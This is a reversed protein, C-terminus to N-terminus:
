IGYLAKRNEIGQLVDATQAPTILGTVLDTATANGRSSRVQSRVALFADGDVCDAGCQALFVGVNPLSPNTQLEEGLKLFQAGEILDIVEKSRKAGVTGLLQEQGHWRNCTECFPQYAPERGIEVALWAILLLAILWYVWTFTAGLNFLAVGLGPIQIVAVGNQDEFLVFGVFGAQGTTSTLILDIQRDVEIQGAQPNTNLVIATQANKFKIFETAWMAAYIVLAILIGAGIAVGPNRIKGMRVAGAVLKGGLWGMGIPFLIIVYVLNSLLAALAGIAAGGLLVALLLILLGTPPVALSPQYPKM